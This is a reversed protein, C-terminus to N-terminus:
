KEGGLAIRYAPPPTGDGLGRLLPLVLARAAEWTAATWEVGLATCYNVVLWELWPGLNRGQQEALNVLREELGLKSIDVLSRVTRDLGREYASLVARVEERGTKDTRAISRLREVHELLVDKLNVIEEAVRVLEETPSGIPRRGQRALVGIARQEALRRRGAAKVQPARGGHVSCVTAGAVAYKRCPEGSSRRASCRVGAPRSM